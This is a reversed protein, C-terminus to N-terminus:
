LRTILLAPGLAALLAIKLSVTGALIEPMVAVQPLALPPAVQGALTVTAPFTTLPAMGLRGAPELTVIVMAPVTLPVATPEMVLVAFTDGGAPTLSGSRESLLEVVFVGTLAMASMFITLNAGVETLAPPM